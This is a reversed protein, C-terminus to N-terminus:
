KKYQTLIEAEASLPLGAAWTPPTTLIREVDARASEANAEPVELLVEDYVHLVVAGVERELTLVAPSLIDRCVAQIVNECLLGGYISKSRGGRVTEARTRSERSINHYRMTRGSPLPIALEQGCHRLANDLSKWFQVIKPNGRRYARVVDVADNGSVHLGFTRAVEVFTKPGCGYGLGLVRVKAMQRGTPDGESMKRPDSYGMTARAHAEYPDVGARILALQSEDEVCWLLAIAEIQGYDASIFVNGKSPVLLNRLNVGGSSKRPLNLLNLGSDGSWRGTHAGFYKLGYRLRGRHSYAAFKELITRTRNHSRYDRMAAAWQCKEGNEALWAEFLPSDKAMSAPPAIGAKACELRVQKPSLIPVPKGKSDTDGAWPIRTTALHLLEGLDRLGRAVADGDIAIGRHTMLTTHLSAAREQEPWGDSFAQWIRLCLRSDELAYDLMEAKELADFDEWRKGIARTRTSKDPSVGLLVQSAKALSRAVGLYACLDATCHWVPPNLGTQLADFVAADFSRNHSVWCDANVYDEWEVEAPPGVYESGDSGVISVLYIDTLAHQAYAVPGHTTVSLAKSYTTEFDIAYIM